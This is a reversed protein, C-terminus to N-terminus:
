SKELLKTMAAAMNMFEFERGIARMCLRTTETGSKAHPLV